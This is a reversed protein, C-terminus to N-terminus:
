YNQNFDTLLRNHFKEHEATLAPNIQNWENFMARLYRQYLLPAQSELEEKEQLLKQIEAMKQAFVTPEKEEMLSHKLAQAAQYLDHTKAPIAAYDALLHQTRQEALSRGLQELQKAQSSPEFTNQTQCSPCSLYITTFYLQDIVIPSGCQVCRFNHKITEFETVIQQYQLEYDITATAEIKALYQAALEDLLALREYCADRFDYYAIALERDEAPYIFHTVKETQVENAKKRISELQGIVAMKMRDYERKYEDTDQANLESLAVIAEEAFVKLKEELKGIFLFFRQKIEEMEQKYQQISLTSM